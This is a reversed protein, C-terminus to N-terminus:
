GNTQNNLFEDLRRVLDPDKFPSLFRTLDEFDSLINVDSLFAKLAFLKKLGNKFSNEDGNRLSFTLSGLYSNLSQSFHDPFFVVSTDVKGIEKFHIQAKILFDNGSVPTDVPPINFKVSCVEPNQELFNVLSPALSIVPLNLAAEYTAAEAIPLGVITNINKSPSLYVKGCSIIGRSLFGFTHLDGQLLVSIMSIYFLSESKVGTVVVVITDSIVNFSVRVNQRKLHKSVRTLNSNLSREILPWQHFAKEEDMLFAKFGLIDLWLVFGETVM